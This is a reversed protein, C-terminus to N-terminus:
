QGRRLEPPPSCRIEFDSETAPHRFYLREAHLLYGCDGPLADPNSITGGAAYLPDGVLPHGAFALHIRIQHPRGTEIGVELLSTDGRKELVSVRSLARKGSASASHVTGLKPHPMLGIPTDISFEQAAPVGTALARYIRTIENKRLAAGLISRARATRAFLVAGSTGRGLRHIPTAGPRSKRVLTLLTHDLFGGGPMTPLRSPKAVALLDDDEHLISYTLPVDPEDWPPRRWLLWRGSKLVTDRQVQLGDLFIEGREIRDRWVNESSHRYKRALYAPVSLGSGRIDIQERYEYGSNKM